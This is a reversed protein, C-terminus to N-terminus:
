IKVVVIFGIEVHLYVVVLLIVMKKKVMRLVEFLRNSFVFYDIYRSFLEFELCVQGQMNMIVVTNSRNCVVFQEPNKALSHVSNVTIDTSGFSKFTAICELSKMSWLKVSGDSSASFVFNEKRIIRWKREFL